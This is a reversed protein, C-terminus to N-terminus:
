IRITLGGEIVRGPQPALGKIFSTHYRQEDDTLNEGRLFFEVSADGALARYGIYARLNNYGNTTLEGRAVDDQDDVRLYTLEAIVNNWELLSGLRWRNSPLRPLDNANSGSLRASM